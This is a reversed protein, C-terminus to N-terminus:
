RSPVVTVWRAVTAWCVWDHFTPPLPPKRRATM